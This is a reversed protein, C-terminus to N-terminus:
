RQRRQLRWAAVVAIRGVGRANHSLVVTGSHLTNVYEIVKEMLPYRRSGVIAIKAM